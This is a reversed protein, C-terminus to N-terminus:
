NLSGIKTLLAEALKRASVIDEKVLTSKATHIYRAPTSIAVVKVGGASKHIAGADNGGSMATKLQWKIGAADATNKAIDLLERDYVTAGDAFSFAAGAGQVTVCQAGISGPLDAATTSELVIAYDPSVNFTASGAGRLGVEECVTFVFWADYELENKIMDLMIACGARDDLAKGCLRGSGFDTVDSDFALTDGVSISGEAQTKDEAGIDGYLDDLKKYEKRAEKDSLHWTKGGIVCRVGNQSRLIQGVIASDLIGGVTKLKLYGKETIGAVIFGVEDMHAALMIKNGPTKRGKKFCIVNGLADVEVKECYKEADEIIASRVKGEDGSVGDIACLKKILELM